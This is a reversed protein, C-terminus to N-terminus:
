TQAILAACSPKFTTQISLLPFCPPVQKFTPHMGELARKCAESSYESAFFIEEIPIFDSFTERLRASIISYLFSPMSPLTLPTSNRNLFFSIVPFNASALIM